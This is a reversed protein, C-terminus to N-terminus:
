FDIFRTYKEFADLLRTKEATNVSPTIKREVMTKFEKIAPLVHDTWLRPDFQVRAVQLTVNWQDDLQSPSWCVYDVTDVQFVVSQLLMQALHATEPVTRESRSWKIEVL